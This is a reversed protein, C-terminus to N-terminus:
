KTFASPLPSEARRGPLTAAIGERKLLEVLLATADEAPMRREPDIQLMGDLVPRLPGAHRPPDPEGRDDATVFADAPYPPRGEVGFYLTAGFSWLDSAEAPRAGLAREPAAYPTPVTAAQAPANEPTAFGFGTLVVREETLLVRSPRIGDHLVGNGHAYRIGALLQFGVWAAWHIPLRSLHRVTERLTLGRLLETVMWLRGQDELLDHVTVIAPHALRAAARAEGLAHLRASPLDSKEIHAPPRVEKLVVDRSLRQDHARWM